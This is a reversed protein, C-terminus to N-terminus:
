PRPFISPRRSQDAANADPTGSGGVPVRSSLVRLSNIDMRCIADEVLMPEHREFFARSGNVRIGFFARPLSARAWSGRHNIWNWSWNGSWSQLHSERGFM